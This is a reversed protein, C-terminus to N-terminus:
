EFVLTQLSHMIMEFHEWMCPIPTALDWLKFHPSGSFSMIRPPQHSRSLFHYRYLGASIEGNRQPPNLLPPIEQGTDCCDFREIEQFDGFM